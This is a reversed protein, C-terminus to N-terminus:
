QVFEKYDRFFKSNAAFLLPRSQELVEHMMKSKYQSERDAREIFINFINEASENWDILHRSEIIVRTWLYFDEIEELATERLCSDIIISKDVGFRRACQLIAKNVIRNTCERNGVEEYVLVLVGILYRSRVIGNGFLMRLYYAKWQEIREKWFDYSIEYDSENEDLQNVIHVIKEDPDKIIYFVNGIWEFGNKNSELLEWYKGRVDLSLVRAMIDDVVDDNEGEMFIYLKGEQRQEIWSESTIEELYTEGSNQNFYSGKILYAKEKM